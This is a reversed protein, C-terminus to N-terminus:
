ASGGKAYADEEICNALNRFMVLVIGLAKSYEPKSLEKLLDNFTVESANLLEANDLSKSMCSLSYTLTVLVSPNILSLMNLIKTLKDILDIVKPETLLKILATLTSSLDVDALVSLGAKDLKDEIRKMVELLEKLEECQCNCSM